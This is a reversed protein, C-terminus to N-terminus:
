AIAGDSPIQDVDALTWHGSHNPIASFGGTAIYREEYRLRWTGRDEDDPEPFYRKEEGYQRKLTATESFHPTPASRVAEQSPGRIFGDVYIRQAPRQRKVLNPDPAAGESPGVRGDEDWVDGAGTVFVTCENGQTHKREWVWIGTAEADQWFREVEGTVGKGSPKFAVVRAYATVVDRAKARAKWTKRVVTDNATRVAISSHFEFLNPQEAGQEVQGGSKLVYVVMRWRWHGKGAGPDSETKFSRISPSHIYNDAPDFDHREVGDLLVRVRKAGAELLLARLDDIGDWVESATDEVVDGYLELLTEHKDLHGDDRYTMDDSIDLNVNRDLTVVGASTTVEISVGM